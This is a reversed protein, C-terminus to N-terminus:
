EDQGAVRIITEMITQSEFNDGVFMVGKEDIQVAFVKIDLNTKSVFEDLKEQIQEVIEDTM